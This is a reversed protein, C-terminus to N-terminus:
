GAGALVERLVAAFEVPKGTEGGYEGGLFGGHGSPFVVPVLGLRAAVAEASRATMQGTSEEGVGVVVRTPAAAVAELDFPFTPLTRMNVSFLPDDRSGDDDAPFGFAAPDPPEQELWDASLPGVQSVLAVFYAMAAGWGREDYVEANRVMAAVMVDADPLVSPIPAEHAVLTRVDGPHAAVWALANAAGGSSAFVDVPGGLHGVLRHLDDAHTAPTAPEPDGVLVSREVGRPDYTVVRRDAFHGALTTFGEAGMPSGIMLLPTPDSAHEPERVDYTLVAGPVELTSTTRTTTPHDSM